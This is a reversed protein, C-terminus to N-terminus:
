YGPNQGGNPQASLLSNANVEETPIPYSYSQNNTWQSPTQNPLLSGYYTAENSGFNSNYPSGGATSNTSNGWRGIDFWWHGEAYLEIFREYALPNHLLNVDSPDAKTLATLSAYDFGSPSNIPQSYARRHVKNIYELANTADGTNMCAEAYLLYVDALRLLYFNAGECQVTENTSADLTQYKKLNWGLFGDGRGSEAPATPGNVAYINVTKAVPRRLRDTATGSGSFLVTDYYPELASVYLRPDAGNSNRFSDSLHQYYAGPVLTTSVYGAANATSSYAPNPVLSSQDLSDPSMAFGFRSLSKEQVYCAGYGMGDVSGFAGDDKFGSPAMFLGWSCTLYLNPTNGFIGYGGNGGVREVEMEFLSEQNFKQDTNSNLEGPYVNSNFAQKYINFPMLQLPLGRPGTGNTIVDSLVTKASDFNQTFVYAKGLLGKAAWSTARGINTGSWSTPLLTIATNLDSTILNWVQRATARPAQTQALTTPTSTYVPVGLINADSSAPAKIDIYKEGYFCELQLYYWARLFYAEGRISRIAASDGAVAYNKEYFSAADLASNADKVGAYLGNWTNSIWLATTPFDNYPADKNQDVLNLNGTTGLEHSVIGTVPLFGWGYLNQSRTNAYGDALISTLQDITSPYVTGNQQSLNAVTVPKKCGFFALSVIGIILVKNRM